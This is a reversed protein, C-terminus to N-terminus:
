KTVHLAPKKGAWPRAQELQSAIRILSAEDGFRAAFQVGIPLGAASWHLPLSIAPQGTINFPPTFPILPFSKALSSLPDDSSAALEGIRPPPAAITPTMLLDFGNQWWSAMRRTYVSLVQLTQRSQSRVAAFRSANECFLRDDLM